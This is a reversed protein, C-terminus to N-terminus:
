IKMEYRLYTRCRNVYFVKQEKIYKSNSSGISKCLNLVFFLGNESYELIALTRNSLGPYERIM